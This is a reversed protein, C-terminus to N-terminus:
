TLARRCVGVQGGVYGSACVCVCDACSQGSVYDFHAELASPPSLWAHVEWMNWVCASWLCILASYKWLQKPYILIFQFASISQKTSESICGATSRNSICVWHSHHESNCLSRTLPQEHMTWLAHFWDRERKVPVYASIFNTGMRDMQIM